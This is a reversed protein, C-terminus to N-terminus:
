KFLSNENAFKVFETRNRINTKMFSNTIHRKVTNPSLYLENAIEQNSRGDCVLKMVRKEAESLSTEMKPMCIVGEYPCEGLLPCPVREFNLNESDVDKKTHDLNGFNCKCFRRAVLFNFYTVNTRSKSYCKCLADYAYPYLERVKEIIENVVESGEKLVEVGNAGEYLVEDGSVFFEMMAM